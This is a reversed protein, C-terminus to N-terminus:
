DTHYAQNNKVKNSVLEFPKFTPSEEVIKISVKKMESSKGPIAETRHRSNNEM